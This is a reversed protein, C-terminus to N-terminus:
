APTLPHGRTDLHLIWSELVLRTRCVELGLQRPLSPGLFPRLGICFDQSNSAESEVIEVSPGLGLSNRPLFVAGGM